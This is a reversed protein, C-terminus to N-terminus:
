CLCASESSFTSVFTGQVHVRGGSGEAFGVESVLIGEEVIYGCTQCRRPDPFPDPRRCWALPASSPLSVPGVSVLYQGGHLGHVPRSERM